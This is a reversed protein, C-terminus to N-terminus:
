IVSPGQGKKPGRTKFQVHLYMYRTGFFVFGLLGTMLLAIGTVGLAEGRLVTYLGILVLGLLVIGLFILCIKRMKDRRMRIHDLIGSALVNKMDRAIAEIKEPEFEVSGGAKIQRSMEELQERSMHHDSVLLHKAKDVYDTPVRGCEPCRDLAGFKIAGCALCVASSM